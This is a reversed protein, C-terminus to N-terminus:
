KKSEEYRRLWAPAVRPPQRKAELEERLRHVTQAYEDLSKEHVHVALTAEALKQELEEIRAAAYQVYLHESGSLLDVIIANMEPYTKM